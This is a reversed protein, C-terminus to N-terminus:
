EDAPTDAILQDFIVKLAASLDKWTENFKRTFWPDAVDRHEGAFDMMLHLKGKPDGGFLTNLDKINAQDMGIIIDYKDYDATTAMRAVHGPCGVGHKALEQRAMPYVPNGIEEDHTGASAIEFMEEKGAQRVMRKLMFEAM